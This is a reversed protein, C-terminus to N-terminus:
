NIAALATTLGELSATVTIREGSATRYSIAATANSGIQERLIPGVPVMGICAQQNCGDINVQVPHARGPFAMSIPEAAQASIPARLLMFPKGDESAVLSWSFVVAGSADEIIQSINCIKTNDKFNEDCILTWNKFPQITRRYQGLPVDAPLAVESPRIRSPTSLVEQGAIPAGGSLLMCSLFLLRNGVRM